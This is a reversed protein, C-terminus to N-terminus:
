SEKNGDNIIILKNNEEKIRGVWLKRLMYDVGVVERESKDVSIGYKLLLEEERMILRYNLLSDIDPEIGLIYYDKTVISEPVDEIKGDKELVLMDRKKVFTFVM